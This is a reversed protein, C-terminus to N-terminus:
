ARPSSRSPMAPGPASLSNGSSPSYPDMLPWWRPQVHLGLRYFRLMATGYGIGITSFVIPLGSHTALGIALLSCGSAAMGVALIVFATSRFRVLDNKCRSANWATFSVTGICLALYLIQVFAAPGRRDLDFLVIPVVSAVIPALAMFFWTGVRKHLASGKRALLPTWYLLLVFFGLVVHAISYPGYPM